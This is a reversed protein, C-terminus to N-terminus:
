FDRGAGPAVAWAGDIMSAAVRGDHEVIAEVASAAGGAYPVAIVDALTGARLEGIVGQRGLAGAANVTVMRLIEDPSVNPFRRSFARMEAFLNLSTGGLQSRVTVLSDTGLCINVGGASLANFPFAAHGFYAHSRPCHVVHVRAAGLIAADDPGLYNVHVALLDAGLYGARQLHQVPTVRGCDSMDRQPRLWEYLAGKAETFMDFEEKSEALHTTLRWGRSRAAKASARLLESSTTYPAHPSLGVRGMGEPLVAVEAVARAVPEEATENKLHILERFSIVRLPTGAWAKPLLEPVAEVDAVTTTGTRLLMDAGAQWSRAYDELTWGAKLAVLSKIWDTFSRPPPISGALGTYDLHCHANILGPLLIAKGLDMVQSADHPPAEAWRGIWSIRNGAVAVGANEILSGSVPAVIRARLLMLPIAAKGVAQRLRV